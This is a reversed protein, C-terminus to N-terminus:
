AIREPVVPLRVAAAIAVAAAAALAALRWRTPSSVCWAGRARWSFAFAFTKTCCDCNTGEVKIRRTRTWVEKMKTRNSSSPPIKRAEGSALRSLGGMSADWRHTISAAAYIRTKRDLETEILQQTHRLASLGGIARSRTIHEAFPCTNASLITGVPDTIMKNHPSAKGRGLLKSLCMSTTVFHAPGAATHQQQTGEKQM